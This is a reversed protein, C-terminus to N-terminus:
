RRTMWDLVGCVVADAVKLHRAPDWSEAEGAPLNIFDVELLCSPVAPNRCVALSKVQAGADRVGPVAAALHKQIAAALPAGLPNAAYTTTHRAVRPDRGAANANHHVSICLDFREDYARAPRSMLDVVVDSERTMTVQFGARELAARIARSVMLNVDKECWGHPSLAGTDRGGHGPDLLIRVEAPRRGYPPKLAFGRTVDPVALTKPPVAVAPACRALTKKEMFYRAGGLWVAMWRAHGQIPAARLVTNSPLYFVTDGEGDFTMRVRNTLLPKVTRWASPAGLRADDDAVVPKVPPTKPPPPSVTFTRKLREGGYTLTVTNAGAQVPVMALFAGTRYVETTVGNVRLVCGPASTVAGILYVENSAVLAAREAPFSVTLAAQAVGALFFGAALLVTRAGSM